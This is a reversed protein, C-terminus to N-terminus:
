VDDAILGNSVQELVIPHLEDSPIQALLIVGPRLVIKIILLGSLRVAPMGFYAQHRLYFQLAQEYLKCASMYQLLKSLWYPLSNLKKHSSCSSVTTTFFLKCICLDECLSTRTM